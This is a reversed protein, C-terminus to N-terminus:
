ISILILINWCLRILTLIELREMDIDINELLEDDIKINYISLKM